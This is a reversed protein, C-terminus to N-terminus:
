HWGLAHSPQRSPNPIQLINRDELAVERRTKRETHQDNKPHRPPNRTPLHREVTVRIECHPQTVALPSVPHKCRRSATSLKTGVITGLPM